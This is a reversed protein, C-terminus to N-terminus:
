FTHRVGLVIADMDQGTNRTTRHLRYRGAADNNLDAYGVYVNTRKSLHYAYSIAFLKGGNDNANVVLGAGNTTTAGAVASGVGGVGGGNGSSDRAVTFGAILQHPGSIRWDAYIGYNNSKTSTGAAGDYRLREWIGGIRLVKMFTYAANINFASDDLDAARYDVHREYGSGIYLPGNRYTAGLSWSRAKQDPPGAFAGGRKQQTDTWQFMGTFGNWTPTHYNISGSSRRHFSTTNSVNDSTTTENHLISAVGMAGTTDFPRYNSGSSLKYPSDWQGFFVNGFNGRLGVATNRDAWGSPLGGGAADSANGFEGGDANFTQEIQFWASLGGGLKETGRFGIYSSGPNELRDYTARTGGEDIRGYESRVSGYLQVTSAQAYVLMPAGLAGAVAVAILKKHM